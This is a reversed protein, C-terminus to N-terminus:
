SSAEWAALFAAVSPWRYQPADAIARLIARGLPPPIQGGVMLHVLHSPSQQNPTAGTILQ